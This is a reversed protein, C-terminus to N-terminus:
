FHVYLLNEKREKTRSVYNFATGMFYSAVPIHSDGYDLM